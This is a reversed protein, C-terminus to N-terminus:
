RNLRWISLNLIMAFAVWIAYPIFLVAAWVSVPWTTIIYIIIVTLLLIIEILATGVKKLGFFLGSWAANLILQGGYLWMVTGWYGSGAKWALWGSIAMLFYLLSWVPGFLWKPPNWSPKELTNYWTDVSRYTFISGIGATAISLLFFVLLTM